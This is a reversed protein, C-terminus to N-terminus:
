AKEHMIPIPVVQIKQHQHSSLIIQCHNQLRLLACGRSSSMASQLLNQIKLLHSVLRLVPILVKDEGKSGRGGQFFTFYNEISGLFHGYVIISKTATHKTLRLIFCKLLCATLKKWTSALKEKEIIFRYFFFGQQHELTQAFLGEFHM